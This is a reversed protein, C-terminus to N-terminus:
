NHGVQVEGAQQISRLLGAIPVTASGVAYTGIPHHVQFIIAAKFFQRKARQRRQVRCLNSWENEASGSDRTTPRFIRGAIEASGGDRTTTSSHENVTTCVGNRPEPKRSRGQRGCDMCDNTRGHKHQVPSRWMHRFISCHLLLQRSRRIGHHCSAM